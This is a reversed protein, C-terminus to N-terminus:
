FGIQCSSSFFDGPNQNARHVPLYFFGLCIFISKHLDTAVFLQLLVFGSQMIITVLLKNSSALLLHSASLFVSCVCFCYLGLFQIWTVLRQLQGLSFFFFLISMSPLPHFLGKFKLVFYDIFINSVQSICEASEGSSEKSKRKSMASPKMKLSSFICTEIFLM